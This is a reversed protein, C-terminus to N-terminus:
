ARQGARYNGRINSFQPLKYGLRRCNSPRGSLKHDVKIAVGIPQSWGVTSRPLNGPVLAKYGLYTTTYVPVESMEVRDRRVVDDPM